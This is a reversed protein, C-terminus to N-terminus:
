HHHDIECNPSACTTAQCARYNFIHSLALILGGAVTMGKEASISLWEHGAIAAFILICLGTIGSVIITARKHKRCGLFLAITSTPIILWLMLQHFIIDESLTNISAIPLLTLAIPVVLCHILCIGSLAVALKDLKRSTILRM